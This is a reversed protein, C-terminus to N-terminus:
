CYPKVRCTSCALRKSAVEGRPQIATRSASVQYATVMVDELIFAGILFNLNNDYPSFPPSLTRSLAADVFKSWAGPSSTTTDASYLTLIGPSGASIDLQLARFGPYMPVVDWAHGGCRDSSHATYFRTHMQRPLVDAIHLM